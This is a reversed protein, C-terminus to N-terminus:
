KIVNKRRKLRDKIGLKKYIEQHVGEPNGSLRIQYVENNEGTMVVTTRQHTSLLSKVTKWERHDGAMRLRTEISVLLHYALVGIFLHSKTREEKHHFIPRMGLESKLDRFAAEIRTLTIYTKWVEETSMDTQNTEIVYCGALIPRQKIQPKSTITISKACDAKSEHIVIEIEYCSAIGSYKQKLRGIREGIKLPKMINGSEVSHKLKNIDELFRSEKLKDMSLKKAERKLSLALVHVGAENPQKMVYVDTKDEIKSWGLQNAVKDSDPKDLATKLMEYESKYQKETPSREIVIYAYGETQLFEVNKSTAIGRDMILIPKELRNFGFNKDNLDTLVEQLTQPEGTNGKYIRSYVPFGKEDVMLAMAVLPCDTRKEKSKGYQALPNNDASGEMYTNTLDFLFCKRELSFLTTEKNYLHKEIKDKNEYLVDATEYFIDKGIGKIESNTMESLATADNFWRRTELESAPNILRGIILAKAVSRQNETMKCQELIHDFELQQWQHDAVLEPGLSRTEITQISNLDVTVLDRNQLAREHVQNKSKAYSGRAFLEDAIGDLEPTFSQFSIQGSIRQELLYALEKWRNKPVDITGLHMIVRQRPKGEINKYSEVLRHVIYEKGKLKTKVERIYM